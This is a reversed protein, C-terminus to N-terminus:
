PKALIGAKREETLIGALVLGDLALQVRNGGAPDDSWVPGRWMQLEALLFKIEPVESAIIAMKEEPTFEAYFTGADPWVKRADAALQDATKPTVVFERESHDYVPANETEPDHEPKQIEEWAPEKGLLVAVQPSDDALTRLENTLPSTLYKM